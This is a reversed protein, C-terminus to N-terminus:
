RHSPRYPRLKDKIDQPWADPIVIQGFAPTATKEQPADPKKYEWLVVRQCLLELDGPLNFGTDQTGRSIDTYAHYGGTFSLRMKLGRAARYPYFQNSVVRVVCGNKFPEVELLSTDITSWVLTAGHKYEVSTIADVTPTNTQCQITGQVDIVANFIANVYSAYGFLNPTCEAEIGRSVEEILPVLKTNDASGDSKLYNKFRALTTYYQGSSAVPTIPTITGSGTTM